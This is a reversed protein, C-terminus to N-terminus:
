TTKSLKNVIYFFKTHSGYDVIKKKGFDNVRLYYSKWGKLKIYNNIVTFAEQETKVIAILDQEDHYGFSVEFMNCGEARKTLKM